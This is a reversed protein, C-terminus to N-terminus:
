FFGDRESFSALRTVATPPALATGAPLPEDSSREPPEPILRGASHGARSTSAAVPAPARRSVGAMQPHQDRSAQGPASGNPHM